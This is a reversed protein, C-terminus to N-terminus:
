NAKSKARARAQIEGVGKLLGGIQDRLGPLAAIPFSVHGVTLRDVTAKEGPVARDAFLTLHAVGNGASISFCGEAFIHPADPRHVLRVRLKRDSDTRGEPPPAEPDAM